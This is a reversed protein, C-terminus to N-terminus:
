NIIYFIIGLILIIQLAYNAKGWSDITSTTGLYYWKQGLGKAACINYGTWLLSALILMLTINPYALTVIGLRLWWGVWKMYKRAPDNLGQQAKM